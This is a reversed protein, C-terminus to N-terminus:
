LRKDRHTKLSLHTEKTWQNTSYILLNSYEKTIAKRNIKTHFKFSNYDNLTYKFKYDLNTM